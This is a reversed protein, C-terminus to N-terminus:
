QHATNGRLKMVYPACGKGQNAESSSKFKEKRKKQKIKKTSDIRESHAEMIIIACVSLIYFISLGGCIIFIFLPLM